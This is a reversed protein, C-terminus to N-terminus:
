QGGDGIGPEAVLNVGVGEAVQAGADATRYEHNLAGFVQNGRLMVPQRQGFRNIVVRGDHQDLPAAVTGVHTVRDSEAEEQALEDLGDM